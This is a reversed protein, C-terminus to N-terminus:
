FPHGADIALPTLVPFVREHFYQEMSTRTARDLREYDMIRIGNRALAPLLEDALCSTMVALSPHLREAVAALQEDPLLGDESRTHVEAEILQKLGAVRIMFFEDLNTGYIAIFKLRELLPNREDLAEELVRDNFALWSLERNIYLAPDDLSLPALEPRVQEAAESDTIMTGSNPPHDRGEERMEARM